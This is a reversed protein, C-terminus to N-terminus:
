IEDIRGRPGPGDIVERASTGTSLFTKFQPQISHAADIDFLSRGFCSYKGHNSLQRVALPTDM